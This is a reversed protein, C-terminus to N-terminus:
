APRRPPGARRGERHARRVVEVEAAPQGAARGAVVRLDKLVAEADGPQLEVAAALRVLGEEGQQAGVDAHRVHREAVDAGLQGGAVDAFPGDM